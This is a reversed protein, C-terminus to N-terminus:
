NIKNAEGFKGNNGYFGLNGNDEIMYYEDHANNDEYRIKGNQISKVVKKDSVSKDPFVMKIKLDGNNSKYLTIIAGMLTQESKWQGLVSNNTESLKKISLDEEATSGFIDVEFDPTFHTTAWAVSGIKMNPTYYLTWLRYCHPRETKLQKGIITLKEKTIKQSLVITVNCKNLAKNYVDKVVKYEFTQKRKPSIEKLRKELEKICSAKDQQNEYSNCIKLDLESLAFVNGFCIFLM